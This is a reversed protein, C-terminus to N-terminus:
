RISEQRRVYSRVGHTLNMQHVKTKRTKTISFQCVKQTAHPQSAKFRCARENKNEHFHYIGAEITQM